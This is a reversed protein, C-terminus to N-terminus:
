SKKLFGKRVLLLVSKDTPTPEALKAVIESEQLAVGITEGTFVNFFITGSLDSFPHICVGEGLWLSLQELSSVM